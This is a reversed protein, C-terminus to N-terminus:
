QDCLTEGDNARRWREFEEPFIDPYTMALHEEIFNQRLIEKMQEKLEESMLDAYEDFLVRWGHVCDLERSVYECLQKMGEEDRSLGDIWAEGREEDQEMECICKDMQVELYDELSDPLDDAGCIYKARDALLQYDEPSIYDSFWDFLYHYARIDAVEAETLLALIIRYGEENCPLEEMARDLNDMLESYDEYDLYEDRLSM